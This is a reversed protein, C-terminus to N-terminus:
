EGMPRDPVCDWHHQKFMLWLRGGRHESNELQKEDLQASISTKVPSAGGTIQSRTGGQARLGRSVGQDSSQGCQSRPRETVLGVLEQSFAQLVDGGLQSKYFIADDEGKVGIRNKKIDNIEM